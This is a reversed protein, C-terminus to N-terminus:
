LGDTEYAPVSTDRSSASLEGMYTLLYSLVVWSSKSFDDLQHSITILSTSVISTDITSFLMGVLLSTVLVTRRGLGITAHRLPSSEVPERLEASIAAIDGLSRNPYSLSLRM